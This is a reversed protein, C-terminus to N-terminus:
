LKLMLLLTIVPSPPPNPHRIWWMVKKKYVQLLQLKYQSVSIHYFSLKASPVFMEVGGGGGCLCSWIVSNFM